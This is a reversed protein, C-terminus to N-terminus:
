RADNFPLSMVDLMWAFLTDKETGAPLFVTMNTKSGGGVDSAMCITSSQPPPFVCGIREKPLPIWADMVKSM